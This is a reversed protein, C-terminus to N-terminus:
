SRKRRRRYLSTMVLAEVLGILASVAVALLVLRVNTLYSLVLSMTEEDFGEHVLLWVTLVVLMAVLSALASIAWLRVFYM